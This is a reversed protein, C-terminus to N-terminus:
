VDAFRPRQWRDAQVRLTFNGNNYLTALYQSDASYNFDTVNGTADTSIKVGPSPAASDVTVESLNHLTGGNENSIYALKKGDSSWKFSLIDQGTAFAYPHSIRTSNATAGVHYYNLGIRRNTNSDTM